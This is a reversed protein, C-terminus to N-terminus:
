EWILTIETVHGGDIIFGRVSWICEEPVCILSIVGPYAFEAVDAASPVQPGSPHSHYIAILELGLNEIQLFAQLQERPDMRFATQSRLENRVSVHLSCACELGGLMGCGEEPLCTALHALMKERMAAPIRLSSM